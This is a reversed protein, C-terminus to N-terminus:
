VAGGSVESVAARLRELRHTIAFREEVRRRADASGERQLAQRIADAMADPNGYPVYLGADGVVEPLAGANTVVPVCGSAMAEAVAVGFGETYSPQVYVKGRSLLEQLEVDPLWGTLKLNEGGIRLLEQAADDVHQGILVFPVEPVKRSAIAFDILGKRRLNERNVIAVTVVLDEKRGPRFKATDVGLYATRVRAKPALARIARGSWESFALVLDATSLALRARLAAWENQLLGYSIEPMAAIDWGGAIVISPRRLAGGALNAVAAFGLAFWSVVLDSRAVNALLSPYSSKGRFPFPRVDAFSSLLVLDTRVFSSDTPYVFLVRHSTVQDAYGRRTKLRLGM